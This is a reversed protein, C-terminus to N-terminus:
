RAGAKSWEDRLYPILVLLSQGSGGLLYTLPLGLALMPGLTLLTMLYNARLPPPQNAIGSLMSGSFALGLIFLLVPFVAFMYHGTRNGSYWNGARLVRHLVNRPGAAPQRPATWRLWAPLARGLEAGDIEGGRLRQALRTAALQEGAEATHLRRLYKHFLPSFMFALLALLVGCVLAPLPIKGLRHPGLWSASVIEIGVALLAMDLAFYRLRLAREEQRLAEFWEERSYRGPSIEPM